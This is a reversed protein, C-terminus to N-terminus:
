RDDGSGATDYKPLTFLFSAGQGPTSEVWIRGGHREIIKKCVSLGIGSGSYLERTHLRQFIVFIREAYKLDLGIGNDRVEFLWFKGDDRSSIDLQPTAESKFKVANAILNQFVQVLQRADGKVTPMPGCNIIAKSEDLAVKLNALADEVVQKCDTAAFEQGKTQVRSYMLLDDILGQMRKSADVTFELFEDASQDLVKGSYRKAILQTYNSIVRLPEQLDHSCVYAFQQLDENSRQLELLKEQLLAEGLRRASIDVISALVFREGGTILPNLGIEVPLKTGDKRQGYLDRGSGMARTKPNAFFSARHEVHKARTAAPVLIDISQGLLEERTYGFLHEVLSNVLAIKGAEDVMIMGSPAAEIVLRLGEETLQHIGTPGKDTM